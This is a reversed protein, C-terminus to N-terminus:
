QGSHGVCLEHHFRAPAQYPHAISAWTESGYLLTPLVVTKCSLRMKTRPRSENRMGSYVRCLSNFSRSAKSIRSSVEKDLSCDASITSGLYELSEVVPSQSM